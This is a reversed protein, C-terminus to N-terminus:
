EGTRSAGAEHRRICRGPPALLLLRSTTPRLMPLQHPLVPLLLLRTLLTFCRAPQLLRRGIRRVAQGRCGWCAVHCCDGGSDPDLFLLGSLAHCSIGVSTATPASMPGLAAPAATDPAGDDDEAGNDDDGDGSAPQEADDSPQETDNDAAATSQPRVPATDGDSEGEM